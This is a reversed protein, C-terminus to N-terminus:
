NEERLSDLFLRALAPIHPLDRVCAVSSPSHIYRVAASIAAVRAGGATKQLASADTGGSIYTKTQWPIGNAEALAKLQEFLGRDYVAGGDMFPLVPGKGPICVKAGGKQSPLDAATTGELVLAYDPKVSFAAGFAGRTGLEEQVTFAFWTDVPLEQKLLTLMAACGVRDDIAKAKLWGDGFEVITPDFSGFDGLSVLSEAEERSQAGIDIYLAKLPPVKEEEGDETLHIPKLGIVGPVANKGIFVRKGLVVRRDIGGVFAFRLFGKETIETVIVGVEDMHAALLVIGKPRALGKKFVILNGMADIRLEDAYPAAERRIYDRVADENGSVGPLACLTKLMDLM